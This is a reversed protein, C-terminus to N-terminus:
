QYNLNHTWVFPIPFAKNMFSEILRNNMFDRKKAEPNGLVLHTLEEPSQVMLCENGIRFEYQSGKESVIVEYDTYVDEFYPYLHKM